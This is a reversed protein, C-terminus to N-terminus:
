KKVIIVPTSNGEGFDRFEHHYVAYHYIEKDKEGPGLLVRLAKYEGKSITGLTEGFLAPNPFFFTVPSDVAQWIVLDGKQVEVPKIFVRKEEKQISIFIEKIKDNNENKFKNEM